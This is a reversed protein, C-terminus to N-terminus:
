LVPGRGMYDWKGFDDRYFDYNYHTERTETSGSGWRRLETFKARVLWSNDGRMGDMKDQQNVPRAPAIEVSQFTLDVASPQSGIGTASSQVRRTILEKAEEETPGGTAAPASTTTASSQDSRELKPTPKTDGCGSLTLLTLTALITTRM